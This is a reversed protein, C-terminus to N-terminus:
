PLDYKIGVQLVLFRLLFLLLIVTSFLKSLYELFQFTNSSKGACLHRIYEHGWDDMAASEDGLLKFRLCENKDSMTMSLVVILSISMLVHIFRVLSFYLWIVQCSTPASGRSRTTKSRRTLRRWPTTTPSWSSSRSRSPRWRLRPPASWPGVIFQVM